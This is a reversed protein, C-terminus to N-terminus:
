TVCCLSVRTLTINMNAPPIRVNRISSFINSAESSLSDWFLLLPSSFLFFIMPYRLRAALQISLKMWPNATALLYILVLCFLDPCYGCQLKRAEKLIPSMVVNAIKIWSIGCSTPSKAIKSLLPKERHSAPLAWIHVALTPINPAKAARERSETLDRSALVAQIRGKEAPPKRFIPLYCLFTSNIHAIGNHLTLANVRQSNISCFWVSLCNLHSTIAAKTETNGSSRLSVFGFSDTLCSPQM